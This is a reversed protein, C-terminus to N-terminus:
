EARVVNIEEAGYSTGELLESIMEAVANEDGDEEDVWFDMEVKYIM